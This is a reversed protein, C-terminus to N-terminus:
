SRKHKYGQCHCMEHEVIWTPTSARPAEAYVTCLPGSVIACASNGAGLCAQDRAVVKWEVVRVPGFPGSSYELDPDLECRLSVCGTMTLLIFFVLLFALVRNFSWFSKLWLWLHEYWYFSRVTLENRSATLVVFYEIGSTKATRTLVDGPKVFLGANIFTITTKKM